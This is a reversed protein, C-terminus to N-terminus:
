RIPAFLYAALAVAFVVLAFQAAKNWRSGADAGIPDRAIAAQAVANLQSM